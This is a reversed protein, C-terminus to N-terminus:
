AFINRIKSVGYGTNGYNEDELDSLGNPISLFYRYTKYIIIIKEVTM